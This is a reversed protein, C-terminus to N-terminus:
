ARMQTQEMALRQEARHRTGEGRKAPEVFTGAKYTGWRPFWTSPKGRDATLGRFSNARIPFKQGCESLNRLIERISSASVFKTVVLM